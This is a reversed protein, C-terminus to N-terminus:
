NKEILKGSETDKKITLDKIKKKSKLEMYDLWECMNLDNCEFCKSECVDKKAVIEM